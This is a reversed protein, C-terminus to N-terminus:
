KVHDAVRGPDEGHERKENTFDSELIKMIQPKIIEVESSKSFTEKQTASNKSDVENQM